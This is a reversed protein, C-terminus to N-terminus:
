DIASGKRYKLLSRGGISSHHGGDPTSPVASAVIATYLLDNGDLSM